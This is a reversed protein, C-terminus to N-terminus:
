ANIICKGIVDLENGEGVFFGEGDRRGDKITSNTLEPERELDDCVLASFEVILERFLQVRQQPEM